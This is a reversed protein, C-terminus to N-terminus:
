MILNCRDALVSWKCKYNSNIYCEKPTNLSPIICETSNVRAQIQYYNYLKKKNELIEIRKLEDDHNDNIKIYETIGYILLIILLILIVFLFIKYNM